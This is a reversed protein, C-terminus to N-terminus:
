KRRKCGPIGAKYLLIGLLAAASVLEAGRWYWPEEFEVRISGAFGPQVSLSIRYSTGPTIQVPEGKDTVAHYGKYCLLPVELQQASDGRNELDVTVAGGERTWGEVTLAAEDYTLKEVYSAVYDSLSFPENRNLPLYEGGMVSEQEESSASQAKMTSMNGAQYVRYPRADQLCQGMYAFGQFFALGMLVGAILRRRDVSLGDEGLLLCLLWTLLVAAVTLFRWLYQISVIPMQFVPLREALWTYPFHCTVM